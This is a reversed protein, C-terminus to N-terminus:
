STLLDDAWRRYLGARRRRDTDTTAAGTRRNERLLDLDLRVTIVDEVNTGAEALVGDPAFGADCPSLVSARAWGPSLPGGPDGTTPCHVVYVQNEVARAQACHRVRWFGAETFTYSPSVILEAGQRALVTSVEPIETEYCVSVGVTIGGVTFPALTDGERTGWGAEAPFIHTKVHRTVSGDPFFVFATNLVGDGDPDRVLHSGAVIVQGRVRALDTFLALYDDTHDAIRGLASVPEDRWGPRATFLAATFLEPLVVLESGDTRDLLTRVQRAFADFGDVRRMEFQVASVTLSTGM